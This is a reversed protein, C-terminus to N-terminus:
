SLIRCAATEGCFISRRFVTGLGRKRSFPPLFPHFCVFIAFFGLISGPPLVPTPVRELFVAFGLQLSRGGRREAPFPVAGLGNWGPNLASAGCQLVFAL